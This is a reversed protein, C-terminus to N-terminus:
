KDRRTITSRPCSCKLIRISKSISSRRLYSLFITLHRSRYAQWEKLGLIRLNLDWMTGGVNAMFIEVMKVNQSVSCQLQKTTMQSTAVAPQVGHTSLWLLSSLLLPRSCKGLIDEEPESLTYSLTERTTTGFGVACKVWFFGDNFNVKLMWPHSRHM